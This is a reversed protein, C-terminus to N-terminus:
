RRLGRRCRSPTHQPTCVEGVNMQLWFAACISPKDLAQLMKSLLLGRRIEQEHAAIRDHIDKLCLCAASCLQTAQELLGPSRVASYRHAMGDSIVVDKAPV